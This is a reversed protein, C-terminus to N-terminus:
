NFIDYRLGKLVSVKENGSIYFSTDDYKLEYFGGQDSMKYFFDVTECSLLKWERNKQLWENCTDVM